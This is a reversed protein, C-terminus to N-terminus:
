HFASTYQSSYAKSCKNGHHLSSMDKRLVDLRDKLIRTIEDENELLSTIIVSLSKKEEQIMELPQKEIVDHLTTIYIEALEIFDEWKGQKVMDLLNLNLEYISEYDESLTNVM